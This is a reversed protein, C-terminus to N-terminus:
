TMEDKFHFTFPHHSEREEATPIEEMFKQGYSSKLYEMYGVPAPYYRGEFRVPVSKSFWESPVITDFSLISLKGTQREIYRSAAKKIRKQIFCEPILVISLKAAIHLMRKIWKEHFSWTYVKIYLLYNLISLEKFQLKRRLPDDTTTDLPFIDLYCGFLGKKTLKHEVLVTNRYHVKAFQQPYNSCHDPSILEVQDDDSRYTELFRNYDKRPIVIDVDDDWPVFGNYKVAGLLTGRCLFYQLGNSECFAATNALLATEMKQIEQLSIEKM